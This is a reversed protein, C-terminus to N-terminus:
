LALKEDLDRAKTEFTEIAAVAEAKDEQSLKLDFELQAVKAELVAKEEDTM